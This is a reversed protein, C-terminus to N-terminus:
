EVSGTSDARQPKFAIERVSLPKALLRGAFFNKIIV